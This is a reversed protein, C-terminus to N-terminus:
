IIKQIIGNKLAEEALMYYNIKYKYIEELKERTLKTNEIYYQVSQEWQKKEFEVDKEVEALDGGMGVQSQHLMYQSLLFGYRETCNVLLDIGMSFACSQCIGVIKYGKSKLFSMMGIISNGALIAGGFCIDLILTITKDQNNSKIDNDYIRRMLHCVELSTDLDIVGTIYIRRDRLASNIKIENHLPNIYQMGEMHM